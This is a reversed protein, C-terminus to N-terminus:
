LSFTHAVKRLCREQIELLEDCGPFVRLGAATALMADDLAGSTLCGQGVEVTIKLAAMVLRTTTGDLDAWSYATGALPIDRMGSLLLRLDPSMKQTEKFRQHEVMVRDADTVILNSLPLEDTYTTPVFEFENSGVADRLGRRLDSVVTSFSSDSVSFDWMATRATSRRARDRNLVLWTLLELSRKKRFEVVKGDVSVAMPFGFLRVEILWPELPQRFDVIGEHSIVRDVASMVVNADPSSICLDDGDSIETGEVAHERIRALAELEPTTFADPIERDHLQQRRRQLIRSLVLGAAIPSLSTDAAVGHSQVSQSDVSNLGATNVALLGTLWAGIRRSPFAAVVGRALRRELRIRRISESLLVMSITALLVWSLAQAEKDVVRANLLEDVSFQRCLVISIWSTVAVLVVSFVLGLSNIRRM